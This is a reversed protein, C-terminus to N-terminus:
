PKHHRTKVAAHEHSFDYELNARKIAQLPIRYDTGDVAMVLTEGSCAVLRGKFNKRNDVAFRTAVRATQGTFRQFDRETKLPRNLGPSSVELRYRHTMVEQVDLIDGLQSSIFSCDDVTVGGQRDVFVRLVWGYPERHYAVDVLEMGEHEVVDRIIAEVRAVIKEELGAM